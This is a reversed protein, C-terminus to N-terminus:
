FLTKFFDLYPDTFKNIDTYYLPAVISNHYESGAGNALLSVPIIKLWSSDHSNEAGNVFSIYYLILTCVMSSFFFYIFLFSMLKQSLLRSPVLPSLCASPGSVFHSGMRQRGKFYCYLSKKLRFVSCTFIEM